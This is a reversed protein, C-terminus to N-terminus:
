LCFIVAVQRFFGGGWYLFFVASFALCIFALSVQKLIKIAPRFSNSAQCAFVKPYIFTLFPAAMINIKAGVSVAMSYVGVEHSDLLGVVIWRDLQDTIWGLVAFIILPKIYLLSSKKLDNSILNRTFFTLKQGLSIIQHFYKFFIFLLAGINGLVLVQWLDVASGHKFLQWFIWLFILQVVSYIIQVLGYDKHKGMLQYYTSGLSVLVQLLTASLALVMIILSSLSFLVAISGFIVVGTSLSILLQLTFPWINEKYKNIQYSLNQIVPRFFLGIVLNGLGFILIYSGYQDPTIYLAIIKGISISSSLTIAQM